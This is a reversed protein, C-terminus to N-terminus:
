PKKVGKIPVRQSLNDTYHSLYINQISTNVYIFIRTEFNFEKVLGFSKIPSKTPSYLISRVKSNQSRGRKKEKKEKQQKSKSFCTAKIIGNPYLLFM